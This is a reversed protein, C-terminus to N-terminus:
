RRPGHRLPDLLRHPRAPPAPPPASLCTLASALPRLLRQDPGGDGDPPDCGHAGLRALAQRAAPLAPHPRGGRCSYACLATTRLLRAYPQAFASGHRSDGAAGPHADLLRGAATVQGAVGTLMRLVRHDLHWRRRRAAPRVNWRLSEHAEDVAARARVLATGLDDEWAPGLVGRPRERRVVADALGDLCRAVRLRLDELAREASRVRVAPFLLVGCLLGFGIGLMIEALHAALESPHGGRVLAFTLLATMPVHLGHHGLFRHRALLASAFVVLALGAMAPRAYLAAPVALLAGLLCGTAHRAAASVTAAVTAEVVLVAAVAGTYPAPIHLLRACAQWTLGAAVAARAAEAGGARGTRALLAPLRASLM